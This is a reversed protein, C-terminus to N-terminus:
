LGYYVDAAAGQRRLGPAALAALSYTLGLVCALGVLYCALTVALMTGTEARRKAGATQGM